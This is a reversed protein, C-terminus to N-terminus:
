EQEDDEALIELKELMEARFEAADIRGAEIDILVSSSNKQTFGLAWLERWKIGLLARLVADSRQAYTTAGDSKSYTALDFRGTVANPNQVTARPAYTRAKKVKPETPETTATTETETETLTATMTEDKSVEQEQAVEDEITAQEEQQRVTAMVLAPNAWIVEGKPSWVEDADQAIAFKIALDRRSKIGVTVLEGYKRTMVSFPTKTSM